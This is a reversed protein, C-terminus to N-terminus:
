GRAPRGNQIRKLSAQIAGRTVSFKRAIESLSKGRDHLCKVEQDNIKKPRGTRKKNKAKFGYKGCKPCKMGYGEQSPAGESTSFIGGCSGCQLSQLPEAQGGSVDRREEPDAEPLVSDRGEDSFLQQVKEHIEEPIIPDGSGMQKVQDLANFIAEEADAKNKFDLLGQDYAATLM